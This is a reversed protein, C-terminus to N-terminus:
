EPLDRIVWCHRENSITVYYKKNGCCVYWRSTGLITFERQLNCNYFGGKRSRVLVNCNRILAHNESVINDKEDESYGSAMFYRLAISGFEEFEKEGFSKISPDKKIEIDQRIPFKGIYTPEGCSYITGPLIDFDSFLIGKKSWETDNNLCDKENKTMYLLDSYIQDDIHRQPYIYEMHRELTEIRSNLRDIERHLKRIEPEVLAPPNDLLNGELPAMLPAGDGGNGNIDIYWSQLDPAYIFIEGFPDYPYAVTAEKNEKVLWVKNYKRLREMWNKGPNQIIDNKTYTRM